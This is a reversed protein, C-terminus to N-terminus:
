GAGGRGGGGGGELSIGAFCPVAGSAAQPGPGAGSTCPCPAWPPRLTDWGGAGCCRCRGCPGRQRTGEGPMAVDEKGQSQHGSPICLGGSGMSLSFSSCELDMHGGLVVSTSVSRPWGQLTWPRTGSPPGRGWVTDLSRGWQQSPDRTGRRPPGLSGLGTGKGGLPALEGSARGM